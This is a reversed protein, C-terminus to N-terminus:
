HLTGKKELKVKLSPPIEKTRPVTVGPIPPLVPPRTSLSSFQRSLLFDRDYRAVSDDKRSSTITPKIQTKPSRRLNSSKPSNRQRKKSTPSAQSDDSGKKREPIARPLSASILRPGSYTEPPM